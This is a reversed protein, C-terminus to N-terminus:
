TGTALWQDLAEGNAFFHAAARALRDMMAVGQGSGAVGDIVVASLKLCDAARLHLYLDHALARPTLRLQRFRPHNSIGRPQPHQGMYGVRAAEPTLLRELLAARAAASIEPALLFVEAKPRYHNYRTGPSRHSTEAGARLPPVGLIAGIEEGTVMGPRLIAPKEGSLDLVTSEIGLRCPGGDLILPIKGELDALVHSALTPSPTGSLNASPAALGRGAARIVARTIANDPM